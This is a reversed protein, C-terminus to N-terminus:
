WYIRWQGAVWLGHGQLTIRRDTEYVEAAPAIQHLSYGSHIVLHGVTYPYYQYETSSAFDQVSQITGQRRAQVFEPYTINWMNLGGGRVPLRIPLTFSILKTFDINDANQWALSQYQLDFHISTVPKTSLAHSLWIHFGPLAFSEECDVSAGLHEELVKSLIEYLWDFHQRLLPNYRHVKEHYNAGAKEPYTVDLYTAAGFTFFASNAGGRPIWDDQLECIRTYANECQTETLMGISITM